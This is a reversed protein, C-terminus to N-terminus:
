TQYPDEVIRGSNRDRRFQRLYEWALEALMVPPWHPSNEVVVYRMANRQEPTYFDAIYHPLAHYLRTEEKDGYFGLCSHFVDDPTERYHLCREVDRPVCGLTLLRANLLGLKWRGTDAPGPDPEFPKKGAGNNRTPYKADDIRPDLYLSDRLGKGRWPLFRNMPVWSFMEYAGVIQFFPVQKEAFRVAEEITYPVNKNDYPTMIDQGCPAVGAIRGPMRMALSLAASGGHSYGAVYIRESDVAYNKEVINLLAAINEYNTNQAMLVIYKEKGANQTFTTSFEDIEIPNSGGHHWVILPYKKGHAAEHWMELPSFIAWRGYYDEPHYMEKRVGLKRYFELCEAGMPDEEYSFRTAALRALQEGYPSDLLANIDAGGNHIHQLFAAFVDFKEAAGSNAAESWYTHTNTIIVEQRISNIM